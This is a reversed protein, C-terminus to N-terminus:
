KLIVASSRNAIVIEKNAVLRDYSYRISEAIIKGCASPLIRGSVHLAM